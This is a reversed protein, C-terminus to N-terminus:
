IRQLIFVIAILSPLYKRLCTNIGPELYTESLNLQMQDEEQASNQKQRYATFQDIIWRYADSFDSVFPSDDDQM